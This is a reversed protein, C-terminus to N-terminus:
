GTYLLKHQDTTLHKSLWKLNLNSTTGDIEFRVRAKQTIKSVSIVEGKLITKERNPFFDSYREKESKDFVKAEVYVLDGENFQETSSWSRTGLKEM